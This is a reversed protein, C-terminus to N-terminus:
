LLMLFVKNLKIKSFIYVRTSQNFFALSLCMQCHGASKLIKCNQLIQPPLYPLNIGEYGFIKLAKVAM